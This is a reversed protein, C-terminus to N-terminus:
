SHKITDNCLNKNYLKNVFYIVTRMLLKYCFNFHSIVVHSVASSPDHSRLATLQALGMYYDEGKCRVTSKDSDEIAQNIDKIEKEISKQSKRINYLLAKLQEKENSAEQSVLQKYLPDVYARLYKVTLSIFESKIKILEKQTQLEQASEGTILTEEKILLDDLSSKFDSQTISDNM